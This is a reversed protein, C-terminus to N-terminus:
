RRYCGPLVDAERAGLQSRWRRHDEAIREPLSKPPKPLYAAQEIYCWPGTAARTHHRPPSASPYEAGM